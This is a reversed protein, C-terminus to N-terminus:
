VMREAAMVLHKRMRWIRLIATREAIGLREGIERAHYGEALLLVIEREQPRAAEWVARLSMRAATTQEPDADPRARNLEAHPALPINEAVVFASMPVAAGVPLAARRGWDRAVNAAVQFVYRRRDARTMSAIHAVHEIVRVFAEQVIDEAERRQFAGAHMLWTVMHLALQEDEYWRAVEACQLLTLPGALASAANRTATM